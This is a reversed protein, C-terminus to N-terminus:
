RGASGGTVAEGRSFICGNSPARTDLSMVHLRLLAGGRRRGRTPHVKVPLLDILAVSTLEEAVERLEDAIAIARALQHLVGEHARQAGIVGDTLGAGDAPPEELGRGIQCSIVAPAARENTESRKAASLLRRVAGEVDFGLV